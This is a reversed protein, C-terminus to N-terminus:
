ERYKLGYASTQFPMTTAYQKSIGPIIDEPAKVYPIIKEAPKRCATLGALAVSASVLSLFNRRSISSPLESDGYRFEDKQRNAFSEPNNREEFRRWYKKDKINM